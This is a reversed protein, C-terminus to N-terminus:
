VRVMVLRVRGGHSVEGDGVRVMGSESFGDEM